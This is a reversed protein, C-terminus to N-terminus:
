ISTNTLNSEGTFTKTADTVSSEWSCVAIWTNYVGDSEICFQFLSFILQKELFFAKGELCLRILTM